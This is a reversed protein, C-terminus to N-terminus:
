KVTFSTTVQAAPLYQASGQQNAGLIVTGRGTLTVVNGSITAPGSKVTVSVTQGSSATPPTITVKRNKSYTVTPIPAFPSITQSVGVVITQTVPNAASYGANGSQSATIVATGWGKITATSGSISLINTDSSTFTVPLASTATAYLPFPAATTALKALPSFNISQSSQTVAFSNTVQTAPLYNWNGSQNAAIIVTGVGTLSLKNGSFTASGSVVSLEVPLGSSSTANIWFPSADFNRSSVPSLTITQYNTPSPSPTASSVPTPTPSAVPGNTGPSSSQLAYCQNQRTAIVVVNSLGVPLNTEGDYNDGWVSITGDSKLAMSSNGGAAISVANSLGVPVNTQGSNNNGWAIVSGDDKLALYHQVGAAVAVVNTVAPPIAPQSSYLSGWTVVTGDSKLVITNMGGMAMSIVTANQLSWPINCQRFTNDGWETVTGDRKLVGYHDEGAAISIVNSLGLPPLMSYNGVWQNGWSTLTGDNKLALSSYMGSAVSVINSLGDPVNNQYTSNNGWAVVGGESTVALANHNDGVALAVANSIAPVSDTGWSQGWFVIRSSVPSPILFLGETRISGDGSDTVRLSYYGTDNYRLPDLTLSANSAGDLPQNNFFWQCLPAGSLGTIRGSLTIKGGPSYNAQPGQDMILSKMMVAAKQSTISGANNSVIVDYFSGTENLSLPPTTYSPDNAGNIPVRNKRWQYLLPATGEATVSFTASDGAGLTVSAPNMVISPSVTFYFSRLGLLFGTGAQVNVINQFSPTSNTQFFDWNIVTGNNLLATGTNGSQAIGAVDNLGIPVNTHQGWTVVTGDSKLALSTESDAAIAVVDVLGQPIGMQYGTNNGGWGAVSGDQILALSHSNGAAIAVVNSLGRPVDTQGYDDNGWAVVTGDDKLALSYSTPGSFSLGRPVGGGAAIAVVNSLGIPIDIQGRRNDGWGIVTGDSKLALVHADAASVSIVDTLGSPVNTQGFTNDGLVTVTSDANLIASVSSRASMSVVNSVSAPIAPANNGTSILTTNDHRPIVWSTCHSSIGLGDTVTVAYVGGDSQQINTLNLIGGTIEPLAVGDRTWRFTYPQVGGPLVSLSANEGFGPFVQPPLYPQQTLTVTYSGLSGYTTYGTPSNSMPSGAGSGYVRIYYNGLPLPLTADVDTRLPSDFHGIVTRNSDLLDIAVDLPDNWPMGAPRVPSVVMKLQPYSNSFSFFNTDTNRVIVGSGRLQIGNTSLPQASTITNNSFDTRLALKGSIIGVQDQPNNADFYEGKSWQSVSKGYSDGMVPAWSTAGSGHGHYYEQASAYGDALTGNHTLGLNHGVEHAAAEAVYSPNTSLNDYFIFAPSYKKAFDKGGFKNLYAVGGAEADPLSVGNTDFNRTILATAVRNNTLSAPKVTTVDVNFPRYHEAVREWIDLIVQQEAPSFTRIDHDMDFPQCPYRAAHGVNWATGSVVQGSFNLYIVNPAGPKSHLPPPASIPINSILGSTAATAAPVTSAPTADAILSAGTKSTSSGPSDPAQQAPLATPSPHTALSAPYKSNTRNTAEVPFPPPPCSYLLGGEADVHLSGVDKRPIKLESLQTLANQRAVPDLAELESRFRGPQISDLTVPGHSGFLAAEQAVAQASAPPTVLATPNRQTIPPSFLPPRVSGLAGAVTKTAGTSPGSNASTSSGSASGGVQANGPSRSGAGCPVEHRRFLVFVAIAALSALAAVKFYRPM